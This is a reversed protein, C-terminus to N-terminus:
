IATFVRAVLWVGAGSALTLLLMRPVAARRYEPSGFAIGLGTKFLSNVAVGLVIAEAAIHVMAQAEALRSMGFTLADM